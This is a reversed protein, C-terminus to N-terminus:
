ASSSTKPRVRNYSFFVLFVAPIVSLALAGVVLKTRIRSGERNARREWFLKLVTRLLMFGLTVTLIYILTSVAWYVLTQGADVPALPGFSFSGLWVLFGILIALLVLGAAIWYRNRM